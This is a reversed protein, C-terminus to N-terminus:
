LEGIIQSKRAEYEADSILGKEHLGKLKALRDEVSAGASGAAAMGAGQITIGGSRAREEEMVRVRNKERWEQELRQAEAYVRLAARNDLGEVHGMRSRLTGDPDRRRSRVDLTAGLLKTSISVETDDQWLFDEMDMRGLLKPRYIIFRRNTVIASDKKFPSNILNQPALALVKEGETLVREVERQIPSTSEEPM